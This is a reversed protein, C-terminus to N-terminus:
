TSSWGPPQVGMQPLSKVIAAICEPCVEVSGSQIQNYAAHDISTFTWGIARAGCWTTRDHEAHTHQICKPDSM